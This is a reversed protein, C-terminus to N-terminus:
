ITHTIMFARPLVDKNRLRLTQGALEIEVTHSYEGLEAPHGKFIGARGVTYAVQQHEVADLLAAPFAKWADAQDNVLGLGAEEGVIGGKAEAGVSLDEKEAM